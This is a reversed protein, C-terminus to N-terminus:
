GRLAFRVLKRTARQFRTEHLLDIFPGLLRLRRRQGRRLVHTMTKVDGWFRKVGALDKRKSSKMFDHYVSGVLRPGFSDRAWYLNLRPENPFAEKLKQFYLMRSRAMRESYSCSGDYIRWQLVSTKRLYQNDFGAIFLRLFFDDDEYGSLRDDFGGVASWAEKTFLSAGPLVYMDESVCQLVSKKPHSSPLEDLFNRRLLRGHRDIRDLNGYVWGLRRTTKLFPEKLVAVHHPHWIDDQDLLAIHTCQTESIGRNRAASQGRNSQSILKIDHKQCLKRVIEPGGDQSGDDVVIIENVPDTQSLISSLAQEIFEAGNYLPIIAAVSIDAAGMESVLLGESKEPGVRSGNLHPGKKDFGDLM